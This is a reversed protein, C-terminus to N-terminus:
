RYLEEDLIASLIKRAKCVRDFSEESHIESNLEIEVNGYEFILKIVDRLEANEQQLSLNQKRLGENQNILNAINQM